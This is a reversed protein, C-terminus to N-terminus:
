EPNVVTIVVHVAHNPSKFRQRPIMWPQQFSNFFHDRSALEKKQMSSYFNQGDAVDLGEEDEDYELEEEDEAM